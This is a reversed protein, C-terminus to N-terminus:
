AGACMKEIEDLLLAVSESAPLSALKKGQKFVVGGTEGFAVGIDAERAEGPGNVVCGMIAVRLYQGTRPLRSEVDKVVSELEVACRGCTPCSVVEIGSMRVGASRLILYGAKVEKLPDGTLSVRITDGIGDLLLSGIGIASKVLGQASLGAETVGLHQPYRTRASMIRAAEVLVPVRSSKLSVVIDYFGESELLAVHALASEVLADATPGGYRSLIDRSLSGANAGIRIPINADRAAAVLERVGQDSGINGPNIRLKDAGAAISALALKYDFHIDAVIPINVQTKIVRIAHASTEDPVAVRAIECGARELRQIQAVTAGVDRTETTTMSQVSVPAGGGILVNGARVQISRSTRNM